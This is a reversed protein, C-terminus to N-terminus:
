LSAQTTELWTVADIVGVWQEQWFLEGTIYEPANLWRPSHKAISRAAVKMNARAQVKEIALALCHTQQELVIGQLVLASRPKAERLIGDNFLPIFQGQHPMLGMLGAYTKPLPTIDHLPVARAVYRADLAWVMGGARFFCYIM